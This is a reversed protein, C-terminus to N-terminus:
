ISGILQQLSPGTYWWLTWVAECVRASSSTTEHGSRKEKTVRMRVRYTPPSFDLISGLWRTVRFPNKITSGAFPTVSLFLGDVLCVYLRAYGSGVRLFWWGKGIKSPPTLSSWVLLCVPLCYPRTGLRKAFGM